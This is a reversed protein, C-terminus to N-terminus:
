CNKKEEFDEDSVLKKQVSGPLPSSRENKAFYSEISKKSYKKKDKWDKFKLHFENELEIGRKKISTYVEPYVTSYVFQFIKKNERLKEKMKDFNTEDKKIYIWVIEAVHPHIVNKCNLYMINDPQCIHKYFRPENCKEWFM